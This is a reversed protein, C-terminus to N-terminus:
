DAALVFDRGESGNIRARVEDLCRGCKPACGLQRFVAPVSAAGANDSLATSLDRDRVANCICVYM